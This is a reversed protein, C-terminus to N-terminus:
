YCPASVSSLTEGSSTRGTIAHEPELGRLWGAVDMARDEAGLLPLGRWPLSYEQASRCGLPVAEPPSRSSDGMASGGRCGSLLGPGLPFGSAALSGLQAPDIRRARQHTKGLPFIALRMRLMIAGWSMRWVTVLLFFLGTCSYIAVFVPSGMKV